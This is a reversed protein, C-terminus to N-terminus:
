PLTEFGHMFLVDPPPPTWHVTISGPAILRANDVVGEEQVRFLWGFNSGPGDLWAQVDTILGDDANGINTDITIQAGDTAPLFVSASPDTQTAPADAWSVGPSDGGGGCPASLFTGTGEVWPEEVRRLDLNATKPAGAGMFRVRVQTFNYVVRTITSGEPIAPLTFRALGRRTSSVAALNGVCYQSYGGGNAEAADEYITAEAAVPGIGSQAYAPAVLWLPGVLSVLHIATRISDQPM